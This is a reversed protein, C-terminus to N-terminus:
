NGTFFQQIDYQIDNAWKSVGTSLAYENLKSMQGTVLLVGVFILLLGSLVSTSHLLFTKGGLTVEWARGRLFKWGKSGQGFRNFFTAVIILPLSLGLVYVFTLTAGALISSGTSILLTLIAGLIPGICATWGLAFTLGYLYASGLTASNSRKINPGAFGIGFISLIGMVIIVTGGIKALLDKNQAIQGFISSIATIAVGLAVMTTALGAFFALSSLWVRRRKITAPEDSGSNIGFTWAFYAPLVPLTCPSLFSLVGALFAPVLLTIVNSGGRAVGILLIAVITIFAIGFGLWVALRSPQHQTHSTQM